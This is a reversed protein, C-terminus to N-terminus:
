AEQVHLANKLTLGLALLSAFGVTSLLLAMWLHAFIYMAAVASAPLGLLGSFILLGVIENSGLQGPPTPLISFLTCLTYGFLATGFSIPTGLAWFALMAFLGDCLAALGALLLAPLFLMPSGIGVLFADVFGTVFGAIKHGIVQPFLLLMTHLVHLAVPRKWVILGSFLLLLLLVLGTLGLVLWLQVDMSIRLLPVLALIVLAPLLDLVKDIAITPLSQSIPINALRKLASARAVEGTRMPLLFNLWATLQSLELVKFTSVQGLPNLFLKWRLGRLVHGVLYVLGVLLALGIGQLTFLHTSFLALTAPLNVFLAALLLLGLGVLLGLSMKCAPA